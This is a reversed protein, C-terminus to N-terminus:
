DLQIRPSEEKHEYSKRLKKRYSRKYPESMEFAVVPRFCTTHLREIVVDLYRGAETQGALIYREKGHGKSDSDKKSYHLGYCVEEVEQPSVGHRGIHDVNNDDWELETIKM